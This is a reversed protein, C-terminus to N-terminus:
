AGRPGGATADVPRLDSSCRWPEDPHSGSTRKGCPALGHERFEVRHQKRVSCGHVHGGPFLEDVWRADDKEPRRHAVGTHGQWTDADHHFVVGPRNHDLLM